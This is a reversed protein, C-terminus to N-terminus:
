PKGEKPCFSASRVVISVNDVNDTENVADQLMACVAKRDREEEALDALYRVSSWLLPRRQGAGTERYLDVSERFDNLAARRDDTRLEAEGLSGLVMALLQQVPRSQSHRRYLEASQRYAEKAEVM